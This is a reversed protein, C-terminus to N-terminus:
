TRSLYQHVQQIAVSGEGVASAVRKVSVRRVDGADFVGPMSKELPWPPLEPPRQGLYEDKRTPPPDTVVFGKDDHEIEEPLWGTRPTAGILVFTRPRVRM